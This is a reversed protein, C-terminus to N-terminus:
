ERGQQPRLGCDCPEPVSVDGSFVRGAVNSSGLGSRGYTQYADRDVQLKGTGPFADASLWLDRGVRVAGANLRLAGHQKFDGTVLLNQGSLALEGPGASLLSGLVRTDPALRTIAGNVGISGGTQNSKYAAQTSDFSDLVFSDADFRLEECACLGYGFVRREPRWACGPAAVGERKGVLIPGTGKCVDDRSGTEFSVRYSM